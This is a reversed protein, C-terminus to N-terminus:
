AGCKRYKETANSGDSMAQNANLNILLENDPFTLFRDIRRACNLAVLYFPTYGEGNVTGFDWGAFVFRVITKVDDRQIAEELSKWNFESTDQIIKEPLVRSLIFVDPTKFRFMQESFWYDFATMGADDRKAPDAGFNDLYSITRSGDKYIAALMLLTQGKYNVVEDMFVNQKKPSLSEYYHRLESSDMSFLHEITVDQARSLKQPFFVLLCFFVLFRVLCIKCRSM